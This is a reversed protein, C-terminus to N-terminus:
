WSFHPTKYRKKKKKKKQNRAEGLELYLPISFISMSTRYWKSNLLNAIGNFFFATSTPSLSSMCLHHALNYITYLAIRKNNQYCRFIESSNILAVQSINTESQFLVNITSVISYQTRQMILSQCYILNSRSSYSNHFILHQTCRELLVICM